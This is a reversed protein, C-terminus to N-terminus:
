RNSLRSTPNIKVVELVIRWAELRTILSYENDGIMVLNIVEQIKSAMGILGALTALLQGSEGEWLRIKNDSSGSAILLVNHNVYDAIYM